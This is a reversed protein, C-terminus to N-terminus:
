GIPGKVPILGLTVQLLAGEAPRNRWAEIETTAKETEVAYFPGGKEFL